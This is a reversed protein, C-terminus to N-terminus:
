GVSQPYLEALDESDGIKSAADVRRARHTAAPDFYGNVARVKARSMRLYVANVSIGRQEAIEEATYMPRGDRTRPRSLEAAADAATQEIMLKLRAKDEPSTWAAGCTDCIAAGDHVTVPQRECRDPLVRWALTDIEQVWINGGCLGDDTPVVCRTIPREPRHGNAHRLTAALRRIEDHFEDVWPQACVWQLHRTLTDREGTVTIHDPTALHRDERVARAWSHLTGLASMVQDSGADAEDDHHDRQRGARWASCTDHDCMLCWPGVSKPTPPAYAPETDRAWLRTRPDRMAIVDLRAPSRESALGSGGHDYRIAMSPRTELLATEDEIARLLHSLEQLHWACTHLGHDARHPKAGIACNTADPVAAGKTPHDLAATM